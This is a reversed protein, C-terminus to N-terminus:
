SVAPASPLLHALCVPCSAPPLPCARCAFPLCARCAFPLALCACRPDQRYACDVFDRIRRFEEKKGQGPFPPSVICTPLALKLHLTSPVCPDLRPPPARRACARGAGPPQKRALRTADWCARIMHAHGQSGCSRPGRWGRPPGQSGWRSACSATTASSGAATSGRSPRRRPTSPLPHSTPPPSIALRAPRRRLTGRQLRLAGACRLEGAAGVKGSWCGPLRASPTRTPARDLGQGRGM